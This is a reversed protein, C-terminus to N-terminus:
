KGEKVGGKDPQVREDPIGPGQGGEGHLPVNFRERAAVEVEPLIRILDTKSPPEYGIVGWIVGAVFGLLGGVFSGVIADFPMSFDFRGGRHLFVALLLGAAAGGATVALVRMVAVGWGSTAVPPRPRGSVKPTTDM